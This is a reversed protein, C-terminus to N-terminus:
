APRARASGLFFFAMSRGLLRYTRGRCVFRRNYDADGTDFLREWRERPRLDPLVFRVIDPRANMMLLLTDGHGAPEGVAAAEAPQGAILM